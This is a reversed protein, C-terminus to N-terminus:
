SLMCGTSAHDRNSMPSDATANLSSESKLPVQNTKIPSMHPVQEISEGPSIPVNNSQSHLMNDEILALVLNERATVDEDCTEIGRDLCAKQLLWDSLAFYKKRAQVWLSDGGRDGHQEM